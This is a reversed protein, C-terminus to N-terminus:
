FGKKREQVEAVHEELGEICCLRETESIDIRESNKCWGKYIRPRGEKEVEADGGESGERTALVSGPMWEMLYHPKSKEATCTLGTALCSCRVSEPLKYADIDLTITETIGLLETAGFSWYKVNTETTTPAVLATIGFTSQPSSLPESSAEALREKITMAEYPPPKKPTRLVM